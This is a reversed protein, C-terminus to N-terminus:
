EIILTGEHAQLDKQSFSSKEFVSLSFIYFSNYIQENLICNTQSNTLYLTVGAVVDRRIM